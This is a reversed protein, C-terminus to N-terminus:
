NVWGTVNLPETVNKSFRIYSRILSLVSRSALRYFSLDPEIRVPSHHRDLGDQVGFSGQSFSLNVLSM